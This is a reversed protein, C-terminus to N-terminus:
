FSWISWRLESREFEIWNPMLKKSCIRYSTFYIDWVDQKDVFDSFVLHAVHNLFDITKVVSARSENTSLFSEFDSIEAQDPLSGIFRMGDIFEFQPLQLSLNKITTTLQANIQLNQIKTQQKLEIAQIVIAFVAGLLALGSFLANVSGFIDGFSGLHAANIPVETIGFIKRYTSFIELDSSFIHSVIIPTFIWTGFVFLFLAVGILIYTKKNM